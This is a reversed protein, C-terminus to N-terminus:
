RGTFRPRRGERHAAIGEDVDRSWELEHRLADSLERAAEVGPDLRSRIIRKAGRIALPGAAAIRGALDEAASALSDPSHVGQVLGIREMEQAGVDRGSCILELARARGVISALRYPGGAGPFGGWAAEPFSMTAHEAALRIDCALALEAAGARAPGNLAAIVIQPVSEIANFARNALRVLAIIDDKSFAARLVPNLIGTSFLRDGGGTIIVAQVVDDRNLEAAVVELKALADPTLRNQEDPNAITVHAVRGARTVVLDDTAASPAFKLTNM